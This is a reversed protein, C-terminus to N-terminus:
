KDKEIKKLNNIANFNGNIERENRNCTKDGGELLNIDSSFSMSDQEQM